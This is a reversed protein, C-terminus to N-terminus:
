FLWHRKFEDRDALPLAFRHLEVVPGVCPEVDELLTELCDVRVREIDVADLDVQQFLEDLRDLKARLFEGFPYFLPSQQM